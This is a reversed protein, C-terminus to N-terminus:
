EGVHDILSVIGWPASLKPHCCLNKVHGEAYLPHIDMPLMHHNMKISQFTHGGFMRSGALVLLFQFCFGLSVLRICGGPVCRSIM